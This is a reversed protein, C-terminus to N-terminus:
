PYDVTKKRHLLTLELIFLIKEQINKFEIKKNIISM